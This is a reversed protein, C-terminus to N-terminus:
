RDLARDFTQPDPFRLRVPGGHQRGRRALTEAVPEALHRVRAFEAWLEEAARRLAPDAVDEPRLCVRGHVVLVPDGGGSLDIWSM